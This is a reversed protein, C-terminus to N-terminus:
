IIYGLKSYIYNRKVTVEKEKEKNQLKFEPAEHKSPLCEVVQAVWGAEIKRKFHPRVMNGLISQVWFGRVETKWTSPVTNMCWQVQTVKEKKKLFIITELHTDTIHFIEQRGYNWSCSKLLIHQPTYSTMYIWLNIYNILLSSCHLKAKVTKNIQSM